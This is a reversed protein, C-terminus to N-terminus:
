RWGPADSGPFSQESAIDVRWDDRARQDVASPRAPVSRREVPLGADIWDQKGEVYEAVDIYGLDLLRRAVTGSTPCASDWCYVVVAFNRDPLLEPALEDVQDPPINVAGPLHSKRFYMAPLAEVVAVEDLRRELDERSITTLVSM